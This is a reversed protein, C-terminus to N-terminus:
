RLLGFQVREDGLLLEGSREHWRHVELVRSGALGGWTNLLLLTGLSGAFLSRGLSRMRLIGVGHLHILEV